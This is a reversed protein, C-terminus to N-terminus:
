RDFEAVYTLILYRKNSGAAAAAAAAATAAGARAALAGAGAGAGAGPGAGAGAKRARLAELDAFTLLDLFVTEARGQLAACLMQVLTAFPKFSGTKRTVSEVYSLSFEGHWAAAQPQALEELDVFLRPEGGGGGGGGGGASGGGASGASGDDGPGGGSDSVTVTLNYAVGHFVLDVSDVADGASAM